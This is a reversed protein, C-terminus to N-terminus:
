ISNSFISDFFLNKVGQKHSRSVPIQTGDKMTLLNSTYKDIMFSNIVYSKHCAIFYNPLKNSIEDLKMYSKYVENGQLHINIIRKDSEIFVIKAPDLVVTGSKVLNINLLSSAENDIQKLVNEIANKLHAKDIPKYLLGSPDANFVDSLYDTYGTMFIIKWISSLERLNIVCNIGNENGLVIDMLVIGNSNKKEKLFSFLSSFDNFAFVNNDYIPFLHLIDEKLSNVLKVNDDCIAIFNCKM